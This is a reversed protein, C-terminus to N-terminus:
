ALFYAYSGMQRDKSNTMLPPESHFQGATLCGVFPCGEKRFGEMAPTLVEPRISLACSHQVTVALTGFSHALTWSLTRLCAVPVRSDCECACVCVWAAEQEIRAILASSVSPAPAVAGM